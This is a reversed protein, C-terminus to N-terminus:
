RIRSELFAIEHEIVENSGYQQAFEEFLAKATKYDQKYEYCIATNYKLSILVDQENLEPHNQIFDIGKQFWDIAGDIDGQEFVLSGIRNYIEGTAGEESNLAQEYLEKAIKVNQEDNSRSLATGLAYLAERNGTGHPDLECSHRYLDLAKSLSQNGRVMCIVELNLYEPKEGDERALQAYTNAANAYEGALVEAEARYRLIDIELSGYKGDKYSLAEDFRAVAASYDGQEMFGIAQKRLEKEKRTNKGCACLVCVTIVICAALLIKRLKSYFGTM